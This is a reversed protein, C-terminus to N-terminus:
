FRCGLGVGVQLAGGWSHSDLAHGTSLSVKTIDTYNIGAALIKKHMNSIGKFFSLFAERAKM